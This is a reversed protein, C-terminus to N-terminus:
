VEMHLLAHFQACAASIRADSQPHICGHCIRVQPLVMREYGSATSALSSARPSLPAADAFSGAGAGGGGGVGGGSSFAPGGFAPGQYFRQTVGFGGSLLPALAARAPSAPVSGQAHPALAPGAVPGAAPAQAARPSVPPGVVVQARRSAGTLRTVTQLNSLTQLSSALDGYAAARRVMDHYSGVDMWPRADAPVEGDAAYPSSPPAPATRVAPVPATGAGARRRGHQVSRTCPGWGCHRM